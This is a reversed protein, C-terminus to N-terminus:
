ASCTVSTYVLNSLTVDSSPHWPDSVYVDRDTRASLVKGTYDVTCQVVGNFSVSFTGGVDRIEIHTSKGLPVQSPPDCGHNWGHKKGMRVHLKSSRSYTWVAPIRETNANGFHLINRWGNAVGHVVLDFGLVFNESTAFSNTLKHSRVPTFDGSILVKSESECPKVWMHSSRMSYHYGHWTRLCIGTAFSKIKGPGDYVGNLNSYHCGRYWWAGTFTKACNGGWGDNDADFTTFKSGSHYSFSDGANGSYGGFVAKFKEAEGAVFFKDYEAFRENNDADVVEVRLRAGMQTIAHLNENGLWLNAEDGFGRAYSSWNRYFSVSPSTRKQVLVWGGKCFVQFPARNDDPKIWKLGDNQGECSRVQASWRCPTPERVTVSGPLNGYVESNYLISGPYIEPTPCEVKSPPQHIVIAIFTMNTINHGNCAHLKTEDIESADMADAMCEMRSAALWSKRWRVVSENAERVADSHRVLVSAFCTDYSSCRTAFGTAWSCSFSEVSDLERGCQQKRENLASAVINCKSQQAPIVEEAQKCLEHDKKWLTHKKNFIEAMDELWMGLTEKASPTCIPVLDAVNATLSERECLLTRNVKMANLYKACTMSVGYEVEQQKRCLTHSKVKAQFASRYSSVQSTLTNCGVFDSAIQHLRKRTANLEALVETKITSATERM